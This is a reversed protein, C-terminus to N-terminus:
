EINGELNTGDPRYDEVYKWKYGGSSVYRGSCCATIGSQRLGLERVATSISEWKRIYEGEISLQVVGHHHSTQAGYRGKHSESMRRKSIPNQRNESRTVWRLNDARNDYRIANIHDVEKKGDPNPKFAMAVLKHVFIKRGKKNKWLSVVQYRNGNSGYFTSHPWPKMIRAVGDKRYALSRVNGMNSVEYLGEYGEVPKWIEQEM